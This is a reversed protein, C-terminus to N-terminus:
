RANRPGSVLEFPQEIKIRDRRGAQDARGDPTGGCGDIGSLAGWDDADRLQKAMRHRNEAM